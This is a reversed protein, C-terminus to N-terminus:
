LSEAIQMGRAKPIAQSRPDILSCASRLVSIYTDEEGLQTQCHACILIHEEVDACGDESLLGLAYRELVDRSFHSDLGVYM